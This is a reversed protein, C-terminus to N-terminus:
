RILIFEPSNLLSWQVHIYGRAPDPQKALFDRVLAIEEPSPRRALTALYLNELLTTESEKRFKELLPSGQNFVPDNM